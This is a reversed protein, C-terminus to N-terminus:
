LSDESTHVACRWLNDGNLSYLTHAAQLIKNKLLQPYDPNDELFDVVENYAAESRHSSLAAGVWNRPFFIDGTRQVERLEELAPRIYKVSGEGRLPHNILAM